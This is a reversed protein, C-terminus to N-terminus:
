HLLSQPNNALGEFFRTYFEFLECVTNPIAASERAKHALREFRRAIATMAVEPTPIYSPTDIEFSPGATKGRKGSPMSMLLEGLPRMMGTMVDIGANMLKSRRLSGTPTLGFHQVMLQIMLFYSENFIEMVVRTQPVTVVNTNYDRHQLSPNRLGPYSPNWPAKYGTEGDTIQEQSLADALRRFKQYHSREFKPSEVNSGEGQEVILDIAFLASNLDDVQFQYDPHVKNFDDRLFLRHEGGVRGKKVIFLDPITQLAERIQHYLESLSGYGHLRDVAPDGSLPENGLNEALFDPMELRMFRQLSTANFPELAFDVDIPFRRNLESFEPVAPYFPEGIAMLINNVMLFHIMEERSIELLVGRMGYSQVEKGDGCALHLQEPTWLGRRVYEEGTLYNPISYGAYIYQLMVAVELEAAQKLATVLEERTQISRQSRKPEPVSPPVYGVRQQNQLFKRLLNTKPQSMDRSPPMYYTKYKNKPDSMQWMLRAYTEVKCQDALSFVDVKMFSFSFEYFALVHKYILDFDIEADPIDELHWDDSMVRVAFFGAGSWFGLKDDNDYAIVAEDPHNSDCSLDASNTSLLVRTTGPRAGRLTVWARGESNTSIVSTPAFDGKEEQKGLKFQVIEMESSPPFHFTKGANTPDSAFEYHLQPFARPNYFQRLYIAEVPAPRGRVFSRVELEVAHDEGRQWNPFEIFLCADDIQLNIEEEQVLIRQQGDPQTGIMCLGQQEIEDRLNEWQEALHVDVIGSTLQHASRQYAEQPIRAILRQSHVTRLELDGLDLKPGIAHIPGTEPKVSRGVCPVATVMNLSVGQHTVQLTLNSLSKSETELSEPARRPTLLRGHPYTNLEKQCWLGITGHLEWFTPSDPQPPASMNSIGLQVVLGLVDDRKMASRLMSVTPSQTAEEGWLFDEANKAIAFQYVAAKQFESNLCHEPLDRIHDFDQWRALQMGSIPASLMNPVEHSGGQRGFTLQGLMITNTWNSAPDCEFFRARNFSTKVYDNYHGWLDVSRGVVPDKEDIQEFERQTSVIQAEISFHGNGGFDYGMAMSFAGNEDLQGEANFRPGLNYLYEHYESAPRHHEFPKGNIYVTNTSVDVGGNKHGTPAHIRAFGQFHLRPFDLISM